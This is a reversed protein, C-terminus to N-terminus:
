KNISPSARLALGYSLVKNLDTNIPLRTEHDRNLVFTRGRTEVIVSGAATAAEPTNGYLSHMLKNMVKTATHWVEAIGILICGLETPLWSPYTAKAIIPILSLDHGPFLKFYDSLFFLTMQTDYWYAKMAFSMIAPMEWVCLSTVMSEGTAYTSVYFLRMGNMDLVLILGVLEWEVPVTIEM